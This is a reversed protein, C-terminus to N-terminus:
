NADEKGGLLADIEDIKYEAWSKYDLDNITESLWQFSTRLKKLGNDLQMIRGAQEDKDKILKDILEGQEVRAKTHAENWKIHQEIEQQQAEVRKNLWYIKREKRYLKKSMDAIITREDQYM